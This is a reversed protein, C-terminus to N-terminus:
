NLTLFCLFSPLHCIQSAGGQRRPKRIVEEEQTEPPGRVSSRAGSGASVRADQPQKQVSQARAKIQLTEGLVGHAPGTCSQGM